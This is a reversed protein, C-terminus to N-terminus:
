DPFLSPLQEPLQHIRYPANRTIGLLLPLLKAETWAELRKWDSPQLPVFGHALISHNRLKLLDLLTEREQEWLTPIPAPGHRSLLEWAQFLGAQRRGERNLPIALGEPICDEPLNSTDLGSVEKLLWQASWELLRYLRAIADDFRESAARRRANLYLDFLRLPERDAGAETLKKLVNYWEPHKAGLLPRYRELLAFAQAHDFRDWAAFALSLDRARQLDNRLDTERPTPLHQLLKAAESYAHNSWLLGADRIRLNLRVRGVSAPTAYGDNSAIKELNSRAGTVLRLEAQEDELLAVVLGTSM